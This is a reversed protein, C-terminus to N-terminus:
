PQNRWTMLDFNSPPQLKAKPKPTAAEQVRLMTGWITLYPGNKNAQDPQAHVASKFNTYDITGMLCGLACVVVVPDVEIRWRYDAIETKIITVRENYQELLLDALNQLDRRCRARIQMTGPKVGKAVISFFGIKTFLWM